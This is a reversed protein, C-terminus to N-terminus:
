KGYIDNTDVLRVAFEMLKGDRWITFHMTDGVQLENKLANVEDTTKVPVGNVATLIDGPRIGQKEADSGKSVDSIYLGEPLEYHSAASEPISGVTIGIAPRGRVEGDRVLARVVNQVTLSPIAFGIGEINSYSSMMKMNTVGIVQGYMNFLAGGSNGENLATNTQLLTMTRGNYSVGREIASIIGDTLTSRFEEGLPNGIAAVPDGVRLAGSQGFVAPILGEAEIKLVAVDSIADAGVLRAPYVEDNSLTVTARDSENVVHTNTLILGDSSLIVGTGWSYGVENGRYASIGVITPACAAYLEQLSLPEAPSDLLALEFEIPLPVREIGIDAVDEQVTEYFSEFFDAFNDPMGDDEAGSAKEEDKKDAAKEGDQKDSAKGGDKKDSPIEADKAEPPEEGDEAEPATEGDEAAPTDPRGVFIEGNPVDLEQAKDAPLAFLLSSVVIFLVVLSIAGLVRAPTWGRRNRRRPASPEEQTRPAAPASQLPEYWGQTERNENNNM